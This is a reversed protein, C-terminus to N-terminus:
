DKFNPREPQRVVGTPPKEISKPGIKGAKVKSQNLKIIPRHQCDCFTGGRCHSHWAQINQDAAHACSACIM